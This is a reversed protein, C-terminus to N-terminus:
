IKTFFQWVIIYRSLKAIFVITIFKKIDYKLVGAVFTIPDGIVPMWSLLLTYSGYKKFLNTANDLQKPNIYSKKTLYDIGKLGIYYNIISGLTNGVSAFLILLFPSYGISLDYLLLAESGIPLLTAAL